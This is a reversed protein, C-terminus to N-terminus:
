GAVRRRSLLLAPGAFGTRGDNEVGFPLVQRRVFGTALFHAHILGVNVLHEGVRAGIAGPAEDQEIGPVLCQALVLLRVPLPPDETGPRNGFGSRRSFAGFGSAAQVDGHDVDAAGACDGGPATARVKRVMTSEPAGDHSKTGAVGALPEIRRRGTRSDFAAALGAGRSGQSPLGLWPGPGPRDRGKEEMGDLIMMVGGTM